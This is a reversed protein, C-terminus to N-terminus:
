ATPAASVVFLFGLLSMVSGSVTIPIWNEGKERIGAVLAHLFQSGASLFTLLLLMPWASAWHSWVDMGSASYAVFQRVTAGKHLIFVYAMELAVLSPVSASGAAVALSLRKRRAYWLIAPLYVAWLVLYFITTSHAQM